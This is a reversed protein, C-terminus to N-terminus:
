LIAPASLGRFSVVVEGQVRVPVASVASVEVCSGLVWALEEGGQWRVDM